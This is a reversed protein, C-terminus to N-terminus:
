RGTRGRGMEVVLLERGGVRSDEGAVLMLKRRAKPQDWFASAARRKGRRIMPLLSACATGGTVPPVSGPLLLHQFM